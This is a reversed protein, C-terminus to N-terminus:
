ITNLRYLPRRGKSTFRYGSLLWTRRRVKEMFQFLPSEVLDRTLGTLNSLLPTGLQQFSSDGSFFWMWSSEHRSSGFDDDGTILWQLTMIANAPTSLMINPGIEIDKLRPM